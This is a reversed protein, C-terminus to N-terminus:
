APTSAPGNTPVLRSVTSSDATCFIGPSTATTRMPSKTPTTASRSSFAILAARCSLSSQFGVGVNVSRWFMSVANRALGDVGRVSISL